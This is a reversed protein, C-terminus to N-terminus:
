VSGRSAAVRQETLLRLARRAGHLAAEQNTATEANTPKGAESRRLRARRETASWTSQIDACLTAIETPGPCNGCLALPLPEDEVRVMRTAPQHCVDCVQGPDPTVSIPAVLQEPDATPGFLKRFVSPNWVVKADTPDVDVQTETERRTDSTEGPRRIGNLLEAVEVAAAGYPGALNLYASGDMM